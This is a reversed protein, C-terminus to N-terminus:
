NIIGFLMKMLIPCIVYHIDKDCICKQECMTLNPHTEILQDWEDKLLSGFEGKGEFGSEIHICFTKFISM